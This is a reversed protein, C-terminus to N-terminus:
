APWISCGLQRGDVEALVDNPNVKSYHFSDAESKKSSRDVAEINQINTDTNKELLPM